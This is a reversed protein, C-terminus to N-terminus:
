ETILTPISKIVEEFEAQLDSSSTAHIYAGSGVEALQMMLASNADDSVSLASVIINERVAIQTASIVSGGDNSNHHGDSIVLIMRSAWPRALKKDSLAGAAYVIAESLNSGGGIYVQDTQIVASRVGSYENALKAETLAKDRATLLAVREDYISEDFLDLLSLVSQGAIKWRADAPVPQSPIWNSTLLPDEANSAVSTPLVMSGSCDLVIALDLELQTCVASKLAQVKIPVGFTPFITGLGQVDSRSSVRVANPKRNSAFEYRTDEEFRNKAFFDIQLLSSDITRGAVMNRSRVRDAAAFAEATDGTTALARGAARAVLDTSTQMETRVLECYTVNICFSAITLVVPLIFVMLALAGGRKRFGSTM